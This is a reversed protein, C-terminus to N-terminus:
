CQGVDSVFSPLSGHSRRHHNKNPGQGAIQAGDSRLMWQRPGKSLMRADSRPANCVYDRADLLDPTPPLASRIWRGRFRPNIVSGARFRRYSGLSCCVTLLRLPRPATDRDLDQSPPEGPPRDGALANECQANIDQQMSSTQANPQYSATSSVASANSWPM